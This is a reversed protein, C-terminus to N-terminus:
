STASPIPFHVGDLLQEGFSIMDELQRVSHTETSELSILITVLADGVKVTIIRFREGPSGGWTLGSIGLVAVDAGVVGGCAALACDAITVDAQRGALGGVKVETM